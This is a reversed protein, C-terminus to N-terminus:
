IEVQEKVLLLNTKIRHAICEEKTTILVLSM